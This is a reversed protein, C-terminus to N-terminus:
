GDVSQCVLRGNWSWEVVIGRANRRDARKGCDTLEM